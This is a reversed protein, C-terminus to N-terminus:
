SNNTNSGFHPLSIQTGFHTIFTAFGIFAKGLLYTTRYFMSGITYNLFKPVIKPLLGYALAGALSVAALQEALPLWNYSTIHWVPHVLPGTGFMVERICFFAVTGAAIYAFGLFSKLLHRALRLHTKRIKIKYSQHDPLHSEVTKM